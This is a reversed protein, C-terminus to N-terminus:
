ILMVCAFIGNYLLYFSVKKIFLIKLVTSKIQYELYLVM